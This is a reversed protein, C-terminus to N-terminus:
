AKNQIHCYSSLIGQSLLQRLKLNQQSIRPKHGSLEALQEAAHRSSDKGLGGLRDVRQEALFAGLKPTGFSQELCNTLRSKQRDGPNKSRVHLSHM